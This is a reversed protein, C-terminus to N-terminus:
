DLTQQIQPILYGVVLKVGKWFRRRPETSERDDQFRYRNKLIRSLNEKSEVALKHRNCFRIYADYFDDKFTGDSEVSGPDIADALFYQIPNVALQHRERRQEITRENVFIRDNRVV